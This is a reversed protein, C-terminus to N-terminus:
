RDQFPRGNAFISHRVRDGAALGLREATGGALELVARVEADPGRPTLDHPRARHVVHVIRGETDIFLMDLPILTNKMWMRVRRPQRFDFLMGQGAPLETVGMLGKQRAKPTSVVAVEFAHVGGASDITLRELRGSLAWAPGAGWGALWPAAAVCALFWRRSLYQMVPGLKREAGAEGQGM